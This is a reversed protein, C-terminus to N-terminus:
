TFAKIRTPIAIILTASTFYARTDTDIRSTFIHHAWVLFGLIRIRWLAFYISIYSDLRNGTISTIINSILRIRPLILVYVEPHRFILVFTPVLYSRKKGM